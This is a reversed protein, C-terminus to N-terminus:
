KTSSEDQEMNKLAFEICKIILKNTSINNKNALEKLIKLLNEDIRITRTISYKKNETSIKFTEM